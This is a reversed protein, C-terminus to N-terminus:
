TKNNGSTDRVREESIKPITWKNVESNKCLTVLSANPGSSYIASPLSPLQNRM